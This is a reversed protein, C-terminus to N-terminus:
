ATSCLIVQEKFSQYFKGGFFGDQGSTRNPSLEKLDRGSEPNSIEENKEIVKSDM